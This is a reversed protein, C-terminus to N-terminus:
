KPALRHAKLQLMKWSPFSSRNRFQTPLPGIGTSDTPVIAWSGTQGPDFDIFKYYVNFGQFIGVPPIPDLTLTTSGQVAEASITPSGVPDSSDVVAYVQVKDGVPLGPISHPGFRDTQHGYGIVTPAAAAHAVFFHFAAFTLLLLTWHLNLRHNLGLRNDNADQKAFSQRIKKFSTM